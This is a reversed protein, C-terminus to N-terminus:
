AWDLTVVATGTTSADANDLIRVRKDLLSVSNVTAGGANWEESAEKLIERDAISGIFDSTVQIRCGDANTRPHYIKLNFGSDMWPAENNATLSAAVLTKLLQYTGTLNIAVSRQM